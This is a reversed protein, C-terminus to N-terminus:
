DPSEAGKTREARRFDSPTRGTTEKFAKNFVAVSRYGLDMTLRLIPLEPEDLLRQKAAAVRHQNLFANFNRYGLVGNIARRVKYDREELKSALDRVTLGETEYFREAQFLATIRDALARLEPAENPLRAGSEDLAPRSGLLWFYLSICAGLSIVITLWSGLEGLFPGRLVLVIGIAAVIGGAGWLTAIRRLSLRDESLEDHLHRGSAVVAALAFAISIAAPVLARWVFEQDTPIPLWIRRRESAWAVTLLLKGALLSWHRWNPQFNNRGQILAFLWFWFTAGSQLLLVILLLPRPVGAAYLIPFVVFAAGGLGMFVACVREWSRMRMAFLGAVVLVHSAAILRGVTSASEWTM